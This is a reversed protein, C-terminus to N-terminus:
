GTHTPARRSAAARISALAFGITEHVLKKQLVILLVLFLLVSCAAGAVGSVLDAGGLDAVLWGASASIVGVAVPVVLPRIVDVQTRRLVARRLVTVEVVAALLLGLGIASVGLVPVLPLTVAFVAITALVVSRLVAGADGIAYLYGQTATAVSGGIALGLCAGPMIDSAERWQEGFLGPFLGPSAGALGTIIIGSGVIAMGVAREILPATDEKAAVLQSMTPFSVRFLSEFLLFPLQMLRNALTWLGLTSVGAIAALSLNLGQNRILWMADAAQFRVGFGILPRVLPWSLRPRILGFPSVRAMIVAATAARAITATALAWVGFGALAFGIAWAYYAFVQSVEVAALRRYSLSRELMIRAPLQLAILPTSSMMIVTVWGIEGFPAAAAGVLLAFGITLTLQLAFLAALEESEPPKARRILGPGLGAESVMGVFLVLAMGIAVAGFDHPDLLRALVVTGGFGFLLIAVGRTLVIFIGAAARQKLEDRTRGPTEESPSAQLSLDPKDPPILKDSAIDPPGKRRRHAIRL